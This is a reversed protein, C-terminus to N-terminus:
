DPTQDMEIGEEIERVFESVEMEFAKALKIITAFSPETINREFKSISVLSLSSREALNAQTIKHIERNKKIVKGIFIRPQMLFDGRKLDM